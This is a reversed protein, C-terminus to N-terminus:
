ERTEESQGRVCLSEVATALETIEDNGEIEVHFPTRREMHTRVGTNIKIIPGVIYYNMFFAFLAAFVLAAAIGITGPMIARNSRDRLESAARYMADNNYDLLERVSSKTKLSAGHFEQVYWRLDGEKVTGVVPAEWMARYADYDSRILELNEIEEPAMERGKATRYGEEFLSDGSVVLAKGQEWEGLSLLLTGSNEKELAELMMTAAQVSSHDKDFSRQVTTGITRVEHVSWAGAALLMVGLLLFGSLMKARLKM